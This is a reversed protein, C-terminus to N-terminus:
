LIEFFTKMKLSPNVRSTGLRTTRIKFTPLGSNYDNKENNILIFTHANSVCVLGFCLRNFTDEIVAASKPFTVSSKFNLTLFKTFIVM